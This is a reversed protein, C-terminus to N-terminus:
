EGAWRAVREELFDAVADPPEAFWKAELVEEDGVSLGGSEATGEFLATLMYLRRNRDTALVIRKRRVRFVDTLTCEVGTEEQVERRATEALTEGPEHGGGPVGWETPSEAHRILLVRDKGDTVWCGADGIWGEEAKRRGREFFEPGNEVTEEVVDFPGYRERLRRVRRDADAKMRTSLSM